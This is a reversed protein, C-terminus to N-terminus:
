ERPTADGFNDALMQFIEGIMDQHVGGGADIDFKFGASEPDDDPKLTVLIYPELGLMPTRVEIMERAM